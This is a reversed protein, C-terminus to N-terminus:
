YPQIDAKNKEALKHIEVGDRDMFMCFLVQGVDLWRSWVLKTVRKTM